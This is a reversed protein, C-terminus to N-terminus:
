QYIVKSIDLEVPIVNGQLKQAAQKAKDLSRATIIVKYGKALLGQAIAYGIGRNGGTVLATKNKM